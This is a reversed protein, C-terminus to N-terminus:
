LENIIETVAMSRLRKVPTYVAALFSLVFLLFIEGVSDAPIKWTGGFHTILVKTIILRHVFLGGVLGIAMGCAAYTLAEAAIMKTMQKMSMGVARMAGYQRIGASVSMSISNMIHFITILAMIALFGFAAIRFVWYSGYTETKEERRDHFVNEGAIREIAHVTEEAADKALVANVLMYKDEGTLRTFTEETCVVLPNAWGGIGESVVCAIQLETDGMRIQDSTNLHGEENFVTLVYDSGDTIKSLEGSVVSKEASAFMIDDYSILDILGSLGNIEVPLDFAISNGLVAEVGPLAAIEEKIDRDMSNTNDIGVIEMDPSLSGVSPLLKKIIDFCASFAMFLTVTLAFSLTLLILNKKASVAHHVGLASEVRLLRTDTARMVKRGTEASGTVAAVPSVDAARKAPTHAALLVTVMGVLVGCVIGVPSIRFSFESFEGKVLYKLVLCAAWTFVFSLVCGAPIATRCWNLAELRVFRMVQQRSAGICRMMGFFQIRQAINSNMCSSIMMVGACLVMAFLVAALGYMNLFQRRTSAGAMGVTVPNEEVNGDALGYRERVAAIATRLKTGEAFQVYCVPETKEGNAQCLRQLAFVDLYVCVGGIANNYQTDDQCFGSVTYSFAGAPTNIVCTDGIHVGLKEEADASLMVQNENQPWSGETEYNRIEYLWSQQVGYFVVRKGATEYGEYIDDGFSCCWALASVDDQAAIQAAQVESIGSLILHYKGHKRVMATNEGNVWIDTMSFVTTVLFVALIICFLTLRNQKRRTKASISVLSLYSKMAPKKM